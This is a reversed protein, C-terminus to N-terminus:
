KYGLCSLMRTVRELPIGHMVDTPSGDIGRVFSMAYGEGPEVVLPREMCRPDELQGEIERPSIMRLELTTRVIDSLRRESDPEMLHVGTWLDVESGSMMQLRKHAETYSEPKGLIKGQYSVVRGLGIVVGSDYHRAVDEARRRALEPVYTRPEAEGDVREESPSIHSVHHYGLELFAKGQRPSEMALIVRGM